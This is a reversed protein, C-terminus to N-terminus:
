RSHSECFSDFRAALEAIQSKVPTLAKSITSKATSLSIGHRSGSPKSPAPPPPMSAGDGPALGHRSARASPVSLASSNGDSGQADAGASRPKKTARLNAVLQQEHEKAAAKIENIDDYNSCVSGLSRVSDLQSYPLPVRQKTALDFLLLSVKRSHSDSYNHVPISCVAYPGHAPNGYEVMDLVKVTQQTHKNTLWACTALRDPVAVDADGFKWKDGESLTTRTPAAPRSPEATAAPETKPASASEASASQTQQQQQQQKRSESKEVITQQEHKPENATPPQQPAPPAPALTDKSPNEHSMTSDFAWVSLFCIPLPLLM